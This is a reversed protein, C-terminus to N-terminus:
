IDVRIGRVILGFVLRSTKSAVVDEKAKNCGVMDDGWIRVRVGVMGAIAINMYGQVIKFTTQKM